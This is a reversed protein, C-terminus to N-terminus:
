YDLSYKQATERKRSLNFCECVTENSKMEESAYFIMRSCKEVSAVVVEMDNRLQDSAFRLAVGHSNAIALMVIEKDNQCAISAFELAHGSQKVAAMVVKENQRMEPSAYELEGGQQTVAEM